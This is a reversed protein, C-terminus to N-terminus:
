HKRIREESAVYHKPSHYKKSYNDIWYDAVENFTRIIRRQNLEELDFKENIIKNEISKLIAEAKKKSATNTCWQIRKGGYNIDFYYFKSEKGNRKRKYIRSM